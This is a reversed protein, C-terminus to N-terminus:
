ELFITDPPFKPPHGFGFFGYGDVISLRIDQPVRACGWRELFTVIAPVIRDIFEVRHRPTESYHNVETVLLCFIRVDDIWNNAEKEDVFCSITDCMGTWHYLVFPYLNIDRQEKTGLLYRVMLSFKRSFYNQYPNELIVVRYHNQSQVWSLIITRHVNPRKTTEYYVCMSVVVTSITHVLCLFLPESKFILLAGYILM